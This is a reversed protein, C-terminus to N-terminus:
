CEEDVLITSGNGVGFDFLSTMDDDLLTPLPSGEEQLFLKPKVSKIKFFSECLIKLKAVTTTAPLKKTLPAKEGISAAVCKLTISILSSSMKQPVTAGNAVKENEIGHFKKLEAFRPHLKKIEEPNDHCKSMVLRVYRIESEKRERPSVQSGNLIEVKALRAIFVFRPVGGKGPDAIPNESLRIDLLNPFLNLTDISSFDEIKNGGVLLCCLNQFPRFSEGLLEHSNPPKSLSNHDPYWIHSICNNNLFLQELRKLQSLKLIEDWSAIFNNELNLLRLSDFGHVIDSSLPTIGRLKNGMLHLEEVLPLSDKLMEVQKWCIGTHNLVVVKIHNLLPMGSIDHSMINYSLNLTVLAPLDKCIAAIERWDFLLNGTLDLEKLRPITTNIHGPPGASSVGLYALSVSTLEEFRSLKNQIKDIGLLEISVKKNTASLVYMEDQEEKTSEGHYRFELAKLLTVGSSLNHPRVFSATKPGQAEFYRVGNHSGDHKGDGNDWDVGVWNGEYWEVAGVYKVTGIRRTDGTLHVRQGMVFGVSDSGSKSGSNDIDLCSQM